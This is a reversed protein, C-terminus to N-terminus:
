PFKNNLPIKNIHTLSLSLRRQFVLRLIELLHCVERPRVVPYGAHYALHFQKKVKGHEVIEHECLFYLRYQKTFLSDVPSEWVGDEPFIFFLRPVTDEHSELIIKPLEDVKAHLEELSWRTTQTDHLVSITESGSSLSTKLNVGGIENCAAIIEVEAQGGDAVKSKCFEVFIQIDENSLPLRYSRTEVSFQHDHSGEVMSRIEAGVMPSTSRCIKGMLRWERNEMAM